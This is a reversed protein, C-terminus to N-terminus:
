STAEDHSEVGSSRQREKLDQQMARGADLIALYIRDLNGDTMPGHNAQNVNAFVEGERTLDFISRGEALKIAGIALVLSARENLLSVIEQDVDDIKHRIDEVGGRSSNTEVM